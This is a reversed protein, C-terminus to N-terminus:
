FPHPLLVQQLKLWKWGNAISIAEPLLSSPQWKALREKGLLEKKFVQRAGPAHHYAKLM